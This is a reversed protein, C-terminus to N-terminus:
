QQSGRILLRSILNVGWKKWILCTVMALILIVVAAIGLSTAVNAGGSECSCEEWTDSVFGDKIIKPKMALIEGNAMATRIPLTVFYGSNDGYIEVAKTNTIKTIKTKIREEVNADGLNRKGEKFVLDVEGQCTDCVEESTEVELKYVQLIAEARGESLSNSYECSVRDGDMEETINTIEFKDEILSKRGKTTVIQNNPKSEIKGNTKWTIVTDKTSIVNCKLDITDGVMGVLLKIHERGQSLVSEQVLDQNDELYVRDCMVAPVTLLIVFFTNLIMINSRIM